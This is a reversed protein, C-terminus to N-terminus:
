LSPCDDEEPEFFESIETSESHKNKGEMGDRRNFQPAIDRQLSAQPIVRDVVWDGAVDVVPVGNEIKYVTVDGSKRANLDEETSPVPFRMGHGVPLMTKDALVSAKTIINGNGTEQGFPVCISESTEKGRRDRVCDSGASHVKDAGETELLLHGGIFKLKRGFGALM